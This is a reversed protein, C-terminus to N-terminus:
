LGGDGDDDDGEEKDLQNSEESEQSNEDSGGSNEDSDGSVEVSEVDGNINITVEVESSGSDGDDTNSLEDSSEQSGSSNSDGEEYIDKRLGTGGVSSLIPEQRNIDSFIGDESVEGSDLQNSEFESSDEDMYPADVIGDTGVAEFEEILKEWSSSFSVSINTGFMANVDDLCQQRNMLMDQCLPLLADNNMQSETTSLKERKMNYNANLGIENFWSAKLYQQYEILDTFTRQSNVTPQVKIGDLFENSACVGLDGAEVDKLYRNGADKTSDDPATIWSTIRTNISAIRFSLDNEVMASAYRRFLPILGYLFSDNRVIVCDEGIKYTDSFKLAPNAVTCITPRYYEDPEGGLGGWFAYLKGEREAFCAFGNIQLMMELMRQPITDPLGEYEFMRQTRNLMYVVYNRLCEEKDKFDYMKCDFRDFYYSYTDSNNKRSM